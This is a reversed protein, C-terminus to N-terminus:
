EIMTSAIRRDNKLLDAVAVMNVETGLRNQVAVERTM